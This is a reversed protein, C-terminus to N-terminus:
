GVGMLLILVGGWGAGGGGGRRGFNHNRKIDVLGRQQEFENMPLLKGVYEPCEEYVKENDHLTIGDVCRTM